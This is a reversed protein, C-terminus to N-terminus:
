KKVLRKSRVLPAKKAAAKARREARKAEMPGTVDTRQIVLTGYRDGNNGVHRLQIRAKRSTARTRSIRELMLPHVFFDEGWKLAWIDGNFWDNWNYRIRPLNATEPPTAWNFNKLVQAM